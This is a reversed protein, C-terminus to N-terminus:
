GGQHTGNQEEYEVLYKRVTTDSINLKDAIQVYTLKRKRLELMSKVLDPNVVRARKYKGEYLKLKLFVPKGNRIEKVGPKYWIGTGEDFLYGMLKMFEFTNERQYEDFYRNPKQPIMLSGGNEMKRNVSRQRDVKNQCEKCKKSTPRGNKHLYYELKLHKYEECMICKQYDPNTSYDITAPEPSVPQTIEKMKISERWKRKQEKFCTNCYKRTRTKQQTSHFYTDYQDLPKDVNCKRCIM